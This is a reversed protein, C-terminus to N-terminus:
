ALILSATRASARYCRLLVIIDSSPINYCILTDARALHGLAVTIQKPGYEFVHDKDTEGIVICHVQTVNDLLGDTEIDFILRLLGDNCDNAPIIFPRARQAFLLRAHPKAESAPKM